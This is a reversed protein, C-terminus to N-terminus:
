TLNKKKDWQDLLAFFQRLAAIEVEDLLGADRPM